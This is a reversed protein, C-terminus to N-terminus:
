MYDQQEEDVVESSEEKNVKPKKKQESFLSSSLLYLLWAIGFNVGFVVPLPISWMMAGAILFAKPIGMVLVGILLIRSLAQCGQVLELVGNPGPSAVHIEQERPFAEEESNSSCGTEICLCMDFFECTKQIPGIIAFRGKETALLRSVLLRREVYTSEVYSADAGTLLTAARVVVGDYGTLLGVEEVGNQHLERILKVSGERIADSMVFAGAYEGRIAVYIAMRGDELVPVELDIESMMRESGVMVLVDHNMGRIGYGELVEFGEVFEGAPAEELGMHEVVYRLIAAAILNDGEVHAEVEAAAYIVDEVNFGDAPVFTEVQVNGETVFGIHNMLVRKLRPIQEMLHVSGLLIGQNSLFSLCGKQATQCAVSLSSPLLVAALVMSRYIGMNDWQLGYRAFYNVVAAILGLGTLIVVWVKAHSTLSTNEVSAGLLLERTAPIWAGPNPLTITVTIPGEMSRDGKHLEDGEEAIHPETEGFPLITAPGKELIGPFTLPMEVDFIVRDGERVEEPSIDLTM